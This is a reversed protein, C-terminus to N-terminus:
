LLDGTDTESRMFISASIQLRFLVACVDAECRYTFRYTIQQLGKRQGV